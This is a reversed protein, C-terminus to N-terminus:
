NDSSTTQGDGNGGLTDNEDDQEVLTVRRTVLEITDGHELEETDLRVSISMHSDHLDKGYVTRIKRDIQEM